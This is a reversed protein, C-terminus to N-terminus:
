VEETIKYGKYVMEPKQQGDESIVLMSKQIKPESSRDIFVDKPMMGLPKQAKNFSRPAAFDKVFPKLAPTCSCILGTNIELIMCLTVKGAWWTKDTAYFLKYILLGYRVAAVLFARTVSIMLV